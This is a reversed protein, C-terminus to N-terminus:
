CCGTSTTLPGFQVAVTVQNSQGWATRRFWRLRRGIRAMRASLLPKVWGSGVTCGTWWLGGRPFCLCPIVVTSRPLCHRWYRRWCHHWPVIRAISLGVFALNALCALSLSNVTGTFILTNNSMVRIVKIVKIVMYAGTWNRGGLM